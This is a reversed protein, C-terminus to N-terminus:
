EPDGEPYILDDHRLEIVDDDQALLKATIDDQRPIIQLAVHGKPGHMLRFVCTEANTREPDLYGTRYWESVIVAALREPPMSAMRAIPAEYRYDEHGQAM